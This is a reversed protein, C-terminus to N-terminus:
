PSRSLCKQSDTAMVTGNGPFFFRLRCNIRTWFKLNVFVGVKWRTRAKGFLDLPVVGARLAEDMAQMGAPDLALGASQVNYRLPLASRRAVVFPDARLLAVDAGHFGLALDVSSFSADAKSNNNEALITISAQLYAIAGDQGYQLDRLRAGSVVLAPMRPKYLLFVSFVVAGAVIVAIALVTCLVIVARWAWRRTREPSEEWARRRRLHNGATVAPRRRERAMMEKKADDEVSPVEIRPNKDFEQAQDKYARM